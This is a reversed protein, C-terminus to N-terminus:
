LKLQVKTTSYFLLASLIAIAYSLYKKELVKDGIYGIIPASILGMLSMMAFASGVNAHSFNAYKVLWFGSYTSIVPWIFNFSMESVIFSWFKGFSNYPSKISKLWSM